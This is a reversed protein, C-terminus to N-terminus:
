AGLYEDVFARIAMTLERKKEGSFAHVKCTGHRFPERYSFSGKKFKSIWPKYVQGEKFGLKNKWFEKEKEVDMNEYLHLGMKMKDKSIDLFENLWEVFFKIIDPDTNALAITYYDKKSGEGLYLMLGAAFFVDRSLKSFKRQYKKYIERNKDERKKRMSIRFREIKAENRKLNERRLKLIKEKSLPFERLWDSLTSKPVSLIKRIESYSFENELRLKIAQERLQSNM